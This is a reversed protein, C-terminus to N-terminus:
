VSFIPNLFCSKNGATQSVLSILCCISTFSTSEIKLVMLFLFFFDSLFLFFFGVCRTLLVGGCMGPYNVLEIVSQVLNVWQSQLVSLVPRLNCM